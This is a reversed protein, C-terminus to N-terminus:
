DGREAREQARRAAEASPTGPRKREVWGDVNRQRARAVAMAGPPVDSIIVSGAATYAGDGVTVPAVLMNDSGIRVHDGVVSKRKEVGDYNVFVCAAGINSGEGIEADGVYTLHPVKSGAGVVANKMEVYTGAKAKRGLRTGPRLYAFPGVSVEPGIVAQECVASVVVADEGVETDTLTTDPGVKAGAEIRTEGRLRTNPEILADAEITVQADIWTSQPDVITVGARM